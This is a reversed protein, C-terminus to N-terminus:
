DMQHVWAKTVGHLFVKMLGHLRKVLMYTYTHIGSEREPLNIQLTQTSQIGNRQVLPDKQGKELLQCAVYGVVCGQLKLPHCRDGHCDLRGM